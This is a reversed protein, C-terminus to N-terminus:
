KSGPILFIVAMNLVGGALWYIGPGLKGGALYIAGAVFMEFMIITPFINM